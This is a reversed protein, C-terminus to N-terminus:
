VGNTKVGNVNTKIVSTAIGNVKQEKAISGKYGKPNMTQWRWFDEGVFFIFSM